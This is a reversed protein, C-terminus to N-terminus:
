GEKEVRGAKNTHVERSEVDLVKVDAELLQKETDRILDLDERRIMVIKTDGGKTIRPMMRDNIQEMAKIRVRGDKHHLATRITARAVRDQIIPDNLHDELRQPDKLRDFAERYAFKIGEYEPTGRLIPLEDEVFGIQQAKQGETRETWLDSVVLDSLQQFREVPLQDFDQYRVYQAIERFLDRM